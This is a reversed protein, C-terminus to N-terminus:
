KKPVQTPKEYRSKGIQTKGKTTNIAGGPANPKQEQQNVWSLLRLTIEASPAGTGSLWKNVAQRTTNLERALRAKQGLASTLARVRKVLARWYGTESTVSAIIASSPLTDVSLKSKKQTGAAKLRAAQELREEEQWKVRRKKVASRHRRRQLVLEWRDKKFGRLANRGLKLIEAMFNDLSEDPIEDLWQAVDEAILDRLSERLSSQDPSHLDVMLQMIASAYKPTFGPALYTDFVKSFLADPGIGLDEGSPLYYFPGREGQGTALWFPSIRLSPLIQVALSYRLPMRGLELRTLVSRHVGLHHALFSRPWKTLLRVEKLRRCIEIERAPLPHQRPVPRILGSIPGFLFNCFDCM